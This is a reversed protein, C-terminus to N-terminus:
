DEGLEDETDFLFLSNLIDTPTISFSHQGEALKEATQGLYFAASGAAEPLDMNQALFGAILGALIDGSGGTALGDNGSTNIYMIDRDYYISTHSKLLINLENADAFKILESRCDQELAQMEIQALRCFEGWHPTLIFPKGALRPLLERHQAMTNLGDADIVAPKNWHETFYDLLQYTYENVGCGPGFLVVDINELMASLEDLNIKRDSKVPVAKVMVEYPKCDYYHMHDPHCFITVLGAGARLAASSAMFAAGTIGPSGAFVAIKGYDGKHSFKRRLPLCAADNTMLWADCDEEWLTEPIGIPIVQLIGSYEKGKGIVHGFKLSDVALTLNAQFALEAAGTDADVGSPIDIAVKIAPILNVDKILDAIESQLKGKFGIGYIADIIVGVQAFVTESFEEYDEDSPELFEIDGLKQCLELNALTEPSSNGEGAKIIFVPNGHMALWRAIVYGDGGNNGSGCLVVVGRKLSEPFLKILLDACGKGANEMLIRSPIGFQTMAKNDLAKMRESSIITLM